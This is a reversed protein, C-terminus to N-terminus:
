LKQLLDNLRAPHPPNDLLAHLGTRRARWRELLSIARKMGMCRGAQTRVLEQALPWGGDPVDWDVLAVAYPQQRAMELAQTGTQAEDAFVLGALSLRARLYLRSEADAAVILARRAPPEDAAPQTVPGQAADASGLDLDFDPADTAAGFLGDMARVVNPWHLPRSFARAAHAPANDGVWVLPLAGDAQLGHALLAEYSQGDVLALGATAPADATWLMYHVPGQESLRFVTNLAHREADDFGQVKVFVQQVMDRKETRAAHGAADKNTPGRMISRRLALWVAKDPMAGPDGAFGRWCQRM